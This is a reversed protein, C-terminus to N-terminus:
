GKHYIFGSAGRGDPNKPVRREDVYRPASVPSGRKSEAGKGGFMSPKQGNSMTSVPYHQRRGPAPRQFGCVGDGGLATVGKAEDFELGDRELSRHRFPRIPRVVVSKESGPHNSASPAGAAEPGQLHCAVEEVPANAGRGNADSVTGVPCARRKIDFASRGAWAEGFSSRKFREQPVISLADYLSWTKEKRAKTPMIAVELLRSQERFVELRMRLKEPM